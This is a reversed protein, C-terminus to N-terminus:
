SRHDTQYDLSEKLKLMKALFIKALKEGVFFHHFGDNNRFYFYYGEAGLTSMEQIFFNVTGCCFCNKKQNIYLKLQQDTVLIDDHEVSLCNGMKQLQLSRSLVVQRM